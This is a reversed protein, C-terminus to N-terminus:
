GEEKRQEIEMRLPFVNGENGGSDDLESMGVSLVSTLGGM